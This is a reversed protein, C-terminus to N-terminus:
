IDFKERLASNVHFSCIKEFIKDITTTIPVHPWVLLKQEIHDKKDYFLIVDVFFFWFNVPLGRNAYKTHENM